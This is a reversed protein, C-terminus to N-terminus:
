CFNQISKIQGLIMLGGFFNRFQGCVALFVFSKYGFVSVRVGRNGLRSIIGLYETRGGCNIIWIPWEACAFLRNPPSCFALLQWAPWVFPMDAVYTNLSWVVDIYEPM